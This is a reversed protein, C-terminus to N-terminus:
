LVLLSGKEKQEDAPVFSGIKNEYQQTYYVLPWDHGFLETPRLSTIDICACHNTLPANTAPVPDDTNLFHQAYDAGIGFNNLGYKTSLAGKLQFPDLLTLQIYRRNNNDDRSEKEEVKRTHQIFAHAPFAGVSVGIVHIRKYQQELSSVIRSAVNRGVREGDFSAKLTDQSYTSWDILVVDNNNSKSNKQILNLLNNINEDPGNAGHFLITLDGGGGAAAAAATGQTGSAKFNQENNAASSYSIYKINEEQLAALTGSRAYGELLLPVGLFFGGIGTVLKRRTMTSLISGGRPIYNRINRVEEEAEDDGRGRTSIGNENLLSSSMDSEKSSYLSSSSPSAKTPRSANLVHSMPKPQQQPFFAM